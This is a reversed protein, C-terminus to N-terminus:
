SDKFTETEFLKMYCISHFEATDITMELTCGLEQIMIERRKQRERELERARDRKFFVCVCVITCLYM